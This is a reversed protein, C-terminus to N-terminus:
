RRSAHKLNASPVRPFRFMARRLSFLIEWAANKWDDLVHPGKPHVRQTVRSSAVCPNRKLTLLVTERPSLSRCESVKHRYSPTFSISKQHLTPSIGLNLRLNKQSNKLTSLKILKALEPFRTSGTPYENPFQNDVIESM